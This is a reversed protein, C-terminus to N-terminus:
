FPKAGQKILSEAAKLRKVYPEVLYGNQRLYYIIFGSLLLAEQNQQLYASDLLDDLASMIHARGDSVGDWLNLLSHMQRTFADVSGTDDHAASEPGRKLILKQGSPLAPQVPEVELKTQWKKIESQIKETEQTETGTQEIEESIMALVEKIRGAEDAGIASDRMKDANEAMWDGVEVTAEPTEQSRRAIDDLRDLGIMVTLPDEKQAVARDLFSELLTELTRLSESKSM